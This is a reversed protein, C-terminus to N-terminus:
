CRACLVALDGALHFESAVARECRVLGKDQAKVKYEVEGFDGVDGM